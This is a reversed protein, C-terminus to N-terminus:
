IKQSIAVQCKKTELEINGRQKKLSEKYKKFRQVRQSLHEETLGVLRGSEDFGVQDFEREEINEVREPMETLTGEGGLAKANAKIRCDQLQGWMGKSDFKDNGYLKDQESRVDWELQRLYEVMEQKKRMVVHNDDNVGVTTDTSVTQSKDLQTKIDKAEIPPAPKEKSSCSVLISMCIFAKIVFKM